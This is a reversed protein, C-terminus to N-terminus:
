STKPFIDSVQVGLAKALAEKESTWPSLKGTEVNSIFSVYKGIAKGLEYQTLGRQKRIERLKNM